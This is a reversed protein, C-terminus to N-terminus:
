NFLLGRRPCRQFDGSCKQAGALCFSSSNVDIVFLYIIYYIYYIYYLYIFIIFIIFIIFYLLFYNFLYCVVVLVDRFIVLVNRLVLWVFLLLISM